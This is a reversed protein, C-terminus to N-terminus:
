AWLEDLLGEDVCIDYYLRAELPISRAWNILDDVSEYAYLDDDEDEPAGEPPALLDVQVQLLANLVVEFRAATRQLDVNQEWPPNERLVRRCYPCTRSSQLAERLCETGFPHGCGLIRSGAHPNVVFYQPVFNITVAVTVLDNESTGVSILPCKCIMCEESELPVYPEVGTEFFRDIFELITSM